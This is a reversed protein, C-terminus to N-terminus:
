LKDKFAPMSEGSDLVQKVLQQDTHTVAHGEKLSPVKLTKDEITVTGGGGDAGHCNQCMKAYNTKAVALEDVTGTPAATAPTATTTTEAPPTNQTGCGLASLTLLMLSLLTVVRNKITTM